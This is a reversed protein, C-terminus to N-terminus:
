NTTELRQKIHNKIDVPLSDLSIKEGNHPGPEGMGFQSVGQPHAPNDSLCLCDNLGNVKNKGNFYIIYRDIFDPNDYVSIINEM